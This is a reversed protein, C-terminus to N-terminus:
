MRNKKIIEVLSNLIANHRKTSMALGLKCNNTIHSANEVEEGCRRCTKDAASCWSYRRLPLLDLRNKYLLRWDNISLETNVSTLRAIDKNREDLM